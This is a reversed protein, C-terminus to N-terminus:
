LSSTPQGPTWPLFWTTSSIRYSTLIVKCSSSDGLHRPHIQPGNQLRGILKGQAPCLLIWPHATRHLAWLGVFCWARQSSVPQARHISSHPGPSILPHISCTLPHIPVAQSVPAMCYSIMRARVALHDPGCLTHFVGTALGTWASKAALEVGAHM